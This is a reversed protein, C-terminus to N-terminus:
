FSKLDPALAHSRLNESLRIIEMVRTVMQKDLGIQGAIEDESLERQIGLLIL